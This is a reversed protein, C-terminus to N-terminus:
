AGHQIETQLTQLEKEEESVPTLCMGDFQLRKHPM